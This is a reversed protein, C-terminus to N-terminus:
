SVLYDLAEDRTSFPILKNPTIKNYGMLLVKKIGVVGVIAAKVSKHNFLKEGSKKAADMYKRSGPINTVDILHLSKGPISGVVEESEKLVALMEETNECNTYDILVVQKGKHVLLKVAM